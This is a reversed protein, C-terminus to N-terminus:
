KRGKNFLGKAFSFFNKVKGWRRRYKTNLKDARGMARQRKANLEMNIKRSFDKGFSSIVVNELEDDPIERARQIRYQPTIMYRRVAMELYPFRFEVINWTFEVNGKNREMEKQWLTVFAKRQRRPIYNLNIGQILRWQHGTKKNIGTIKYFLIIIPNPDERWANYFFTYFHGSKWKIGHSKWNLTVNLAM